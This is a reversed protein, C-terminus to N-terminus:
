RTPTARVRGSKDGLVIFEDSNLEHSLLNDSWRHREYVRNYRLVWVLERKITSRGRPPVVSKTRATREADLAKKAEMLKRQSEELEEGIAEVGM